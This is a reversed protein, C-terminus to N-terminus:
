CKGVRKELKLFDYEGGNTKNYFHGVVEYGAKEFVKIGMQNLKAIALVFKCVAKKTIFAWEIYDILEKGYGKGMYLPNLGFWYEATNNDILDYNFFALIETLGPKRVTFTNQGRIQPDLFDELEEEDKTMDYFSLIGPYKWNFAIEEAEEQEMVTFQFDDEKM